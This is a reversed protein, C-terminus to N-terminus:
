IVVSVRTSRAIPSPSDELRAVIRPRRRSAQVLDRLKSALRFLLRSAVVVVRQVFGDDCERESSSTQMIFSFPDLFIAHFPRTGHQAMQKNMQDNGSTENLIRM